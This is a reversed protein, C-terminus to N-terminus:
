QNGTKENMWRSLYICDKLSAADENSIKTILIGYRYHGDPGAQDQARIIRAEATVTQWNSFPFLTRPLYIKLRILAGVPLAEEAAILLGSEGLSMARGRMPRGPNEKLSYEVPFTVGDLRPLKRKEVPKKETM